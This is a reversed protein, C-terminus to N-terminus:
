ATVVLTTVVFKLGMQWPIACINTTVVSTTARKDHRDGHCAWNSQFGPM